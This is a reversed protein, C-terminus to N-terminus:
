KKNIRRGGLDVRVAGSKGSVVSKRDRAPFVWPAPPAAPQFGICDLRALDRPQEPLPRGALYGPAACVVRRVEGVRVATLGSDPLLAIRLAVDMREDILDVVRDVFLTLASVGPFRELFDLVVPAVHM